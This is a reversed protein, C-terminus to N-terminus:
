EGTLRDFVHAVRNVPQQDCRLWFANVTLTEFAPELEADIENSEGERIGGFGNVAPREM